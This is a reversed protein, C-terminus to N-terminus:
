ATARFDSSNEPAFHRQEHMPHPQRGLQLLHSEMRGSFLDALAGFLCQDIVGKGILMVKQPQGIRLNSFERVPGPEPFRLFM